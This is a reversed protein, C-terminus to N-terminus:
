KNSKNAAARAQLKGPKPGGGARAVAVGVEVNTGM